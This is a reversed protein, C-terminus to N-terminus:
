LVLQNVSVQLDFILDRQHQTSPTLSPVLTPNVFMNLHLFEEIKCLFTSPVTGTEAVYLDIEFFTKRFPGLSLM